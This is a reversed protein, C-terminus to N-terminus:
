NFARRPKVKFELELKRKRANKVNKMSSDYVSTQANTLLGIENKIEFEFRAGHQFAKLLCANRVTLFQEISELLSPARAIDIM